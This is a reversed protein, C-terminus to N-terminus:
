QFDCTNSNSNYSSGLPCEVPTTPQQNSANSNSSPTGANSTSRNRVPSENLSKENKQLYDPTPASEANFGLSGALLNVVGWFVILVVFALVSYLALNKAKEHGAEEGGQIVFFRIANIIFFLFAVGLLFPILTKNAFAVFKAIFSQASLTQALVITPLIPFLALVYLIKKM